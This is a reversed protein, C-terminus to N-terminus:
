ALQEIGKKLINMSANIDRNHKSHCNPCEWMRITLNKILTNRYGCCSCIQSSAFLRPVKVIENGYWTAKYKLMLFFKSWSVSIISKSLKHNKLMGRINLDEICITQNERILMTSQKHLFDNRQNVIKEHILVIKIRQKNYNNSKKQKRSFKRQAKILKKETKELFKPNSITNGNSDTYFNTIGVDIGIANNKDIKFKPEFKMNITAFYKNTPTKIITVSCINEIDMSKKMKLYGIKPIRIYKGVVRINNYVNRTRYSQYNNHKNKFRPHKARKGFFSKFGRDLDVLAQQLAISDVEKLFLFNQQKKLNTLMAITQTFTVFKGESLFTNRMDLGKNFVLRCCGFTKNIIKQQEENPYIRFKVNKFM